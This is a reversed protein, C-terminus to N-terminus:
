IAEDRFLLRFSERFRHRQLYRNFQDPFWIKLFSATKMESLCIIFNWHYKVPASQSVIHVNEDITLTWKACKVFFLMSTCDSAGNFIHIIHDDEEFYYIWVGLSFSGDIEFASLLIKEGNKLFRSRRGLDEDVMQSPADFFLSDFKGQHKLLFM